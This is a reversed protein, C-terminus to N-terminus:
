AICSNMELFPDFKFAANQKTVFVTLLINDVYQVVWELNILKVQRIYQSQTFKDDVVIAEGYIYKLVSCLQLFLSVRLCLTMGREGGEEVLSFTTGKPPQQTMDDQQLHKVSFDGEKHASM